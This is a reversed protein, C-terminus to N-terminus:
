ARHEGVHNPARPEPLVRWGHRIHHAEAAPKAADAAPQLDDRVGEEFEVGVGAALVVDPIAERM